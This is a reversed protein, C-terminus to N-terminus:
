SCLEASMDKDLYVKGYRAIPEPASYAYPTRYAVSLCFFALFLTTCATFAAILNLGEQM